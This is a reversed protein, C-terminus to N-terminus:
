HSTCNKCRNRCEKKKWGRSKGGGKSKQCSRKKGKRWRKCHTEKHICCDIWMDLDNCTAWFDCQDAQCFMTYNCEWACLSIKGVWKQSSKPMQSSLRFSNHAQKKYNWIYINHYDNNLFKWNECIKLVRTNYRPSGPFMHYVPQLNEDRRECEWSRVQKKIVSM